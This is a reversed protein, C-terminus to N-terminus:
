KSFYNGTWLLTLIIAISLMTVYMSHKGEREKGHAEISTGLEMALCVIMLIQPIGM